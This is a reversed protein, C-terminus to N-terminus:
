QLVQMPDDRVDSKEKRRYVGYKTHWVQAVSKEQWRIWEWSTAAAYEFHVFHDSLALLSPSQAELFRQKTGFKLLFVCISQGISSSPRLGIKSTRTLTSQSVNFLVM